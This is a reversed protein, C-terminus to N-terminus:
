DGEIRAICLKVGDSEADLPDMDALLNTCQEAAWAAGAEFAALGGTWCVGPNFQELFSAGDAGNLEVMHARYAETKSM